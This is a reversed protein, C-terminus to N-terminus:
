SDVWRRGVLLFSLKAFSLLIDRLISAYATSTSVLKPYYFVKIYTNVYGMGRLSEDEGGVKQPPPLSCHSQEEMRDLVARPCVGASFSALDMSMLARGETSCFPVRSFGDLLAVYGGDILNEWLLKLAGSPIRNEASLSCWILSCLDCLSDIYMNPHEHLRSEEWASGVTM